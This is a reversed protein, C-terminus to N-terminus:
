VPSLSQLKRVKLLSSKMRLLTIILSKLSMKMKMIQFNSHISVQFLCGVQLHINKQAELLPSYVRESVLSVRRPSQRCPDPQQRGAATARSRAAAPLRQLLLHGVTPSSPSPRSAPLHTPTLTPNWPPRGRSLVVRLLLLPSMLRFPFLTSVNM